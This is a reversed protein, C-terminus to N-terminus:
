RWRKIRHAPVDQGERESLRADEEGERWRMKEIRIM